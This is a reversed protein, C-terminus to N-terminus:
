KRQQEQERRAKWEEFTPNTRDVRVYGEVRNGGTIPDLTNETIYRTHIVTYGVDLLIEDVIRDREQRDYRDHSSDDLELIGKIKMYKDCLVFDVHRSQITGRYAMYHPDGHRPEVIDFLRVKPCVILDHIAAQRTLEKWAYWENQSLLERVQYHGRYETIKFGTDCSESKKKVTKKSVNKDLAKMAFLLILFFFLYGYM